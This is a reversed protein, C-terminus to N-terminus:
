AKATAGVDTAIAAEGTSKDIYPRHKLTANLQKGTAEALMEGYSKPDTKPGPEIGLHNELFQQLQYEGEPTDVWIDKNFSPWTSVEGIGPSGIDTTDVDAQPTLMKLQFSIILREEGQVQVEKQKPMGVVQALYTGAPKPKPKETETIKKGLLSAFDAM